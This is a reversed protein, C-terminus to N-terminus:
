GGTERRGGLEDRGGLECWSGMGQRRAQLYLYHASALDEVALGLSKFVTIEAASRRGEIRGILVEGLEGQIHDDDIVGEAKALLFDGSEALASERSDVFLRARAVARADLERASPECAGVANIHTGPALWDGALVPEHASTTTCIIGAGAVAKEATDVPTIDVQLRASQERAFRVAGELPLSWVRVRRIPRVLLMAELHAAAQVGAGLLALDDAEPLALVKTAVASVAATRVRTVATADIIAKLRGHETEFLLVVGQHVDYPGGSNKSFRTLVKVAASASSSEYSPMVSLLADERGLSMSARVPSVSQGEAMDALAREMVAICEAMPMLTAVAEGDLILVRM